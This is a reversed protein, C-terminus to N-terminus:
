VIRPSNKISNRETQSTNSMSVRNSHLVNEDRPIQSLNLEKVEGAASSNNNVSNGAHIGENGETVLGNRENMETMKRVQALNVFGGAGTANSGHSM